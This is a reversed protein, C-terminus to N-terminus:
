EGILVKFKTSRVLETIFYAITGWVVFNLLVVFSVPYDFFYTFTIYILPSHFLYIGFSNRSVKNLLAIPIDPMASYIALTFLIACILDRRYLFMTDILCILFIVYNIWKYRRLFLLLKEVSEEIVCGGLAFAWAYQYVSKLYPIGFDPILGYFCGAGLCIFLVIIKKTWIGIRKLSFFIVFIIFLTPLFWLHGSDTNTLLKLFASIYNDNQYGPYRVILKIPIMWMMGILFFPIMLRRFKKTFFEIITENKSSIGFLFGSLFFFLPMQFLNIYRKVADLMPCVDESKYVGWLSSYIIISHGFVVATIAFARINNIKYNM